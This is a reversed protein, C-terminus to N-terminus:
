SPTDPSFLRLTDRWTAHLYDLPQGRIAAESWEQMREMAHLDSSILYPPGFLKQAPSEPEYIYIKGSRYGRQSAPPDRVARRHGATAHVQRLGGM